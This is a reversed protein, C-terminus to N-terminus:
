SGSFEQILSTLFWNVLNQNLAHPQCGWMTMLSISSHGATQTTIRHLLTSGYIEYKHKYIGPMNICLWSNHCKSLCKTLMLHKWWFEYNRIYSRKPCAFIRPIENLTPVPSVLGATLIIKGVHNSWRPSRKEWLSTWSSINQRATFVPQVGASFGRAFIGITVAKLYAIWEKM